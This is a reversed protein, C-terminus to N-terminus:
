NTKDSAAKKKEILKREAILQKETLPIPDVVAGTPAIGKSQLVFSMVKKFVPGGLYGGWHLGKPDQITV